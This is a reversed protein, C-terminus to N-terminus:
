GQKYTITAAFPDVRASVTASSPDVRPSAVAAFPDPFNIATTPPAVPGGLMNLNLLYLLLM